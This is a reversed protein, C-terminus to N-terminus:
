HSMRRWESYLILNSKNLGHSVKCIVQIDARVVLVAIIDYPGVLHTSPLLTPCAPLISYCAGIAKAGTLKRKPKALM